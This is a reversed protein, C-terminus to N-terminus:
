FMERSEWTGANSDIGERAPRTEFLKSFVQFGNVTKGGLNEGGLRRSRFYCFHSCYYQPDLFERQVL